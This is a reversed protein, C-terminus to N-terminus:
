LFYLRALRGLVMDASIMNTQHLGKIYCFKGFKRKLFRGYSISIISIASLKRSRLKLIHYFSFITWKAQAFLAKPKLSHHM